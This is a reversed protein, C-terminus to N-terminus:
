LVLLLGVSAVLLALVSEKYAGGSPLTTVSTDPLWVVYSILVKALVM